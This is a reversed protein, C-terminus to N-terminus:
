LFREHLFLPEPKKWLKQKVQTKRFLIKKLIIHSHSNLEKNM